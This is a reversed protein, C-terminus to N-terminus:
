LKMMKKIETSANTTIRISYMGSELEAVSISMQPSLEQESVVIQGLANFIQLSGDSSFDYGPYISISVFDKM